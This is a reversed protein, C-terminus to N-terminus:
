YVYMQTSSFQYGINSWNMDIRANMCTITTYGNSQYYLIRNGHLLNSVQLISFQQCPLLGLEDLAKQTLQWSQVDM